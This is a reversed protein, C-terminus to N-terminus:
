DGRSQFADAFRKLEQERADSAALYQELLPELSRSWLQHIPPQPGGKARWLYTGSPPKSSRTSLWGGLFFTIDAFYTHGVEFAPGLEESHAILRNLEAARDAFTELQPLVEEYSYKSGAREFVDREWRAEVITLIVERKFPLKRWLFRRRLAFDLTEVSQDIENMTGIVYVDEPMALREEPEDPNIGPLPVSRGRSDSELLSFTEGLMASLDTRNIEDLVLVTPLPSLDGPLSQNEHREIMQPLTGPRYRTTEGEIRLGRVFEEYGYGPHLQIWTLNRDEALLQELLEQHSFFASPGWRDLAARRILTGALERAEFTKSTGPPGYLVIQKKWLLASLDGVDGETNPNTSEWVRHLPPHYFDIQGQTNGKPLYEELKGRISLLREDLDEPSEGNDLLGKFAEAIEHKHTGSSIREFDNPRLLHLLVHRMERIPVPSDDAFERLQKRDELLAARDAEPLEKLRKSFDILYAVQVDRRTNFGIGPHGIGHWLADLAPGESVELALEAPLTTEILEAKKDGSISTAFLFHVLLIEAAFIRTSDDAGDLQKRWKQLFNGEEAGDLQNENFRSHLEAITAPAWPADDRNPFLLSGDALLCRERWLDVTEDIKTRDDEAYRAM